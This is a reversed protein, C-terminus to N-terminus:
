NLMQEIFKRPLKADNSLINVHAEGRHNKEDFINIVTSLCITQILQNHTKINCNMLLREM